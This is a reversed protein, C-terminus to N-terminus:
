PETSDTGTCEEVTFHAVHVSKKPKLRPWLFPPCWSDTNGGRCMFNPGRQGGEPRPGPFQASEVLIRQGSISILFRVAGGGVVIRGFRALVAHSFIVGACLIEAKAGFIHM